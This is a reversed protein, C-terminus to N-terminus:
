EDETHAFPEDDSQPEPAVVPAPTVVPAVAPEDDGREWARMAASIRAKEGEFGDGFKSADSARLVVHRRELKSAHWRDAKAEWVVPDADTSGIVPQEFIM